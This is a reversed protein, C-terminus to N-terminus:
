NGLEDEVKKASLTPIARASAFVFSAIDSIDMAAKKNELNCELLVEDEDYVNKWDAIVYDIIVDNFKDEDEKSMAERVEVQKTEPNTGISRKIFPKRLEEVVTGTLPNILFEVGAEYECWVPDNKRNKRICLM